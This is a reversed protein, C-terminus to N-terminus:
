GSPVLYTIRADGIDAQTPKNEVVRWGLLHTPTKLTM